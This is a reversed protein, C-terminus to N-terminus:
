FIFIMTYYSVPSSIDFTIQYPYGAENIYLGEFVALGDVINVITLEQPRLRQKLISPDTSNDPGTILAAIITGTNFSLVTNEGRDVVAITPNQSFLIGGFAVGIFNKFALKYPDGIYVNFPNSFTQAFLDGNSTRGIFKM